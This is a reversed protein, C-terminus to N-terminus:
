RGTEDSRHVRRAILHDLGLRGSGTVALALSLLGLAIVLEPGTHDMSYLAGTHAFVWAGAMNLAMLVGIVRVGLGLILAIGGILEGFLNAPGAIVPLPVGSQDFMAIVGPLSGGFDYEIKAHWVMLVGLGVRALLLVIDRAAEALHGSRVSSTAAPEAVMENGAM